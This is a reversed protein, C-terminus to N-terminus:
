RRGASPFFARRRYDKTLLLKIVTKAFTRPDWGVQEMIFHELRTMRMKDQFFELVEERTDFPTRGGIYPDLEISMSHVNLGQRSEAEADRIQGHVARHVERVDKAM